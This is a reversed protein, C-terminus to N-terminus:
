SIKLKRTLERHIEIRYPDGKTGSSAVLITCTTMTPANWNTPMVTTVFITFPM